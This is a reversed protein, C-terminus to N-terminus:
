VPDTWPAQTHFYAEINAAVADLLRQRAARSAWAVHPTITLRPLDPALLPHDPPPPEESLVDLAAGGLRGERLASALADEDVIGGRATNVLLAGSRLLGLEAAGILGRTEPTLPCHLSLVDVRPLLEALPLRGPRTDGGPRQAVLVDMGLCRAMRAVAGGLEGLGVIGLTRGAVEEIPHDLLCFQSSRSWDGRRVADQQDTLRTFHNLILALVHQVVSATAYGRVNRVGIGLRAAAELDLNNTGTAAVCVLKLAPAGELLTADLTVKNTVVVQAGALRERTQDPATAPHLAWGQCAGRLRSLDLDGRDVSALDLFVGHVPQM